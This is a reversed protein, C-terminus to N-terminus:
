FGSMQKGGLIHIHFHYVTQGGQPGDNIMLRFGDPCLENGLRGAQLVLHGLLQKQDDRGHRLQTLGDRLKPILLVHVPAQPHIDDFAYCLDDEFVKRSPLTGNLIKDFITTGAEAKAETAMCRQSYLGLIEVKARHTGRNPLLLGYNRFALYGIFGLATDISCARRLSRQSSNIYGLIEEKEEILERNPLALGNVFCVVSRRSAGTLVQSNNREM